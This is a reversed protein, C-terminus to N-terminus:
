QRSTDTRLGYLLMSQRDTRKWKCMLMDSILSLCGEKSFQKWHSWNKTWNMEQM